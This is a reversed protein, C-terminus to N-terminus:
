INIITRFTHKLKQNYQHNMERKKKKRVAGTTTVVVVIGPGAGAPYGGCFVVNCPQGIGCGCGPYYIKIGVNQGKRGMLDMKLMSFQNPLIWELIWENILQNNM